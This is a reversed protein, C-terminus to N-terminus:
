QTKCGGDGMQEGVQKAATAMAADEETIMGIAVNFATNQETDPLLATVVESVALTGSGDTDMVAFAKADATEQNQCYYEWRENAKLKSEKKIDDLAKKTQKEMEKKMEAPMGQLFSGVGAKEALVQGIQVAFKRYENVYDRFFVAAEEKDLVNDGNKDHLKFSEVIIGFLKGRLKKAKAEAAAKKAPDMLVALADMGGPATKMNDLVTEFYQHLFPAKSECCFCQGM